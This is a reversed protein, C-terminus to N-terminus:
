RRRSNKYLEYKSNIWKRIGAKVNLSVIVLIIFLIISVVKKM